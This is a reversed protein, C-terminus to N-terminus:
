LVIAAPAPWAPPTPDPTFHYGDKSRAIWIRHIDDLTTVDMMLIYEDKYRIAGPNFTYLCEIPMQAPTIVPNHEYKELLRKKCFEM